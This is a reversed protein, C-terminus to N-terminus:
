TYAYKLVGKSWNISYKTNQTPQTIDITWDITYVDSIIGTVEVSEAINDKIMFQLAKKISQVGDQLTKNSVTAREIVSPFESIYKESEDNTLENQWTNPDSFVALLVMTELGDTMCPQGNFYRIDWDGDDNLALTLDGTYTNCENM